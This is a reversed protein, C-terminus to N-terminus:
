VDHWNYNYKTLIYFLINSISCENDLLERHMNLLWINVKVNKKIAHLTSLYFLVKINNVVDGFVDSEIDRSKKKDFCIDCAANGPEWKVTNHIHYGIVYNQKPYRLLTDVRRM